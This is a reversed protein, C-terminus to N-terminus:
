YTHYHSTQVAFDLINM